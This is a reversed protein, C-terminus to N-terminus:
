ARSERRERPREDVSRRFAWLLGCVALLVLDRVFASKLTSGTPDREGLGLCGCEIDLGLRIGYGLVGLFVILLGAVLALAWTKRLLLGLGGAIELLTVLFATAGVLADPVIGFDGVLRTFQELDLLKLIGTALFFLGLGLRVVRFVVQSRQSLRASARDSVVRVQWLVLKGARDGIM